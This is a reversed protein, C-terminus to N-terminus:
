AELKVKSQEALEELTLWKSSDNLDDPNDYFIVVACEDDDCRLNFKNYHENIFKIVNSKNDEVLKVSSIVNHSDMIGVAAKYIIKSSRTTKTKTESSNESSSSKRTRPAFLENVREENNMRWMYDSGTFTMMTTGDFLLMQQSKDKVLEQIYSDFFIEKINDITRDIIFDEGDTKTLQFVLPEYNKIADLFKKMNTKNLKNKADIINIDSM